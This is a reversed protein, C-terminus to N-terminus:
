RKPVRSLIEVAGSLCRELVVLDRFDASSRNQRGLRERQKAVKGLLGTLAKQSSRLEDFLAGESRNEPEEQEVEKAAQQKRLHERRRIFKASRIQRIQIRAGLDAAVKSNEGGLAERYQRQLTLIKRQNDHAASALKELSRIQDPNQEDEGIEDAYQLLLQERSLETM